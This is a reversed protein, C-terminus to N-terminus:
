DGASSPGVAPSSAPEHHNDFGVVPELGKTRDIYLLTVAIVALPIILAYFFSSVGNALGVAARGLTLLGFGVLIGPLIAMLDFMFVAAM